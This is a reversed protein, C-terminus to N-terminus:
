SSRYARLQRRTRAGTVRLIAAVHLKVTGPTIGLRQAIGKNSLGEALLELVEQQRGTLAAPRGIADGEENIIEDAGFTGLGAALSAHAARVAPLLDHNKKGALELAAQLQRVPAALRKVVKAVLRTAVEHAREAEEKALRLATEAEVERTIDIVIGDWVVSGDPRRYPKAIGRAWFVQGQLGIVRVRHDLMSLTAASIELDSVFRRRDDPHIWDFRIAPERLLRENDIAFHRFLGSSLFEFMYTGDPRRVRRYVNGPLNEIVADLIGRAEPANALSVAKRLGPMSM